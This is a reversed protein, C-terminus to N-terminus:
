APMRQTGMSSSAVARAQRGLATRQRIIAGVICLGAALMTWSGPEPVPLTSTVVQLTSSYSGGLTGTSLGSFSITYNGPALIPVYFESQLLTGTFITQTDSAIDGGGQQRLTVDFGTIGALPINTWSSVSNIGASVGLTFTFTDAFPGPLDPGSFNVEEGIILAAATARTAASGIAAAVILLVLARVLRKCLNHRSHANM